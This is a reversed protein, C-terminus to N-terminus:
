RLSLSTSLTPFIVMAWHVTGLLSSECEKLNWISSYNNWRIFLRKTISKLYMFALFILDDALLKQTRMLRPHIRPIGEHARCIHTSLGGQGSNGAVAQSSSSLNKYRLTNPQLIPVIVVAEFHRSFSLIFYNATQLSCITHFQSRRLQECLAHTGTKQLWTYQPYKIFIQQLHQTLINLIFTLTYYKFHTISTQSLASVKWVNSTRGRM